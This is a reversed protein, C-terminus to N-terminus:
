LKAAFEKAQIEWEQTQLDIRTKKKETCVTARVYGGGGEFNFCGPSEETVKLGLGGEGFFAKVRKAAEKESLKTTMELNLM